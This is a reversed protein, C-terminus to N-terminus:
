KTLVQVPIKSGEQAVFPKDKGTHLYTEWACRAFYTSRAWMKIYYEKHEPTECGKLTAKMEDSLRPGNLCNFYHQKEVDTLETVRKEFELFNMMVEIKSLRKTDDDNSEDLYSGIYELVEVERPDVEASDQPEDNM